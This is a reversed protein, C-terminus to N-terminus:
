AVAERASPRPPDLHERYARCILRNFFLVAEERAGLLRNREVRGARLGEHQIVTADGDETFTQEWLAIWDELRRQDSGTEAFYDIRQCTTEPGTPRMQSLIMLGQQQLILFGPYISISRYDEARLYTGRRRPKPAYRNTMFRSEFVTRVSKIDADYAGAFSTAHINRCHYCEVFNDYWLKWNSSVDHVAERHFRYSSPDLNVEISAAGEALGLYSDLFPAAHPDANVFVAPGWQDVAVPVLGLRERPFDSEDESGPANALRGDLRYSWRHYGCILRRCGRAGARAVRYGRHRCVNVFGHLAGDEARAVLVPVNGAYGIMVDGTEAVSEAPGLYQWEKAFIAELDLEHIAPDFYFRVPLGWSADLDRGIQEIDVGLADANVGM